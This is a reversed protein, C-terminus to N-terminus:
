SPTYSITITKEHTGPTQSSNEFGCYSPTVKFANSSEYIIRFECTNYGSGNDSLLGHLLPVSLGSCGTTIGTCAEPNAINATFTGPTAATADTVSGTKSRVTGNLNYFVFGSVAAPNIVITGINIDGTKTINADASATKFNGLVIEHDITTSIAFNESVAAANYATYSVGFLLLILFTKNTM